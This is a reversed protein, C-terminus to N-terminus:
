RNRIQILSEWIVLEILRTKRWTHGYPPGKGPSPARTLNLGRSDPEQFNRSTRWRPIM